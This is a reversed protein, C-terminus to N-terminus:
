IYGWIKTITAFYNSSSANKAAVTFVFEQYGDSAITITKTLINNLSNGSSYLSLDTFKPVGNISLSLIGYVNGLSALFKLTYTGAKLLKKFKFSNNIAPTNQFAAMGYAYSSSVTIAIPNGAVVISQDHFHTFEQPYEQEVSAGALLNGRTIRGTIGNEQQIPILDSDSAVTFETGLENIQKLM